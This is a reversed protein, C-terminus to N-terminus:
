QPKWIQCAPVARTETGVRIGNSYTSFHQHDFEHRFLGVQLEPPGPRNGTIFSTGIAQGGDRKQRCCQNRFIRPRM